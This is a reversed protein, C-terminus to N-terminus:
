TVQLQLNTPPVPKIGCSITGTQIDMTCGSPTRIWDQDYVVANLDSTPPRLTYIIGVLPDCSLGM